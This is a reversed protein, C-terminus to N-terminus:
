DREENRRLTNTKPYWRYETIYRGDKTFLVIQRGLWVGVNGVIQSAPIEEDDYYQKLLRNHAKTAREILRYKVANKTTPKMDYYGSPKM